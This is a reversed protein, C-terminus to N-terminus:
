WVLYLVGGLYDFTTQAVAYVNIIIRPRSCTTRIEGLAMLSVFAGMWDIGIFFWDTLNAMMRNVVLMGSVSELVDAVM